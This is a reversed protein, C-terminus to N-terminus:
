DLNVAWIQLFFEVVVVFFHLVLPNQCPTLDHPKKKTGILLM